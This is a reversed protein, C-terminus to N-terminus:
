TVSTCSTSRAQRGSGSMICGRDAEISRFVLELIRELLQNLDLIHSVAQSAEYM